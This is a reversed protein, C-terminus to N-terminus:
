APMEPNCIYRLHPLTMDATAFSAMIPNTLRLNSATAGFAAPDLATVRPKGREAKSFTYEPDVQVLVLKGDESNRALHMSAIYQIDGGSIADRDMLEVELVTKAGVAIKGIIRDHRLVLSAAGAAAVPYGWRAALEKRAAENDCYSRLVFGRPRVGTRGAVRVEGITFAGWPSAPAHMLNLIAYAPIAPHMTRPILADAPDDDIENHLELIQVGKLVLQDTKYGNITPALKAFSALDLNGLRPPM